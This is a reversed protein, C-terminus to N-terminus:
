EDPESLEQLMAAFSIADHISDIHGGFEFSSAYRNLKGVTAQFLQFRQFDNETKLVIGNPFFQKMIKGHRKYADGYEANRSEFTKSAEKLIESVRNM